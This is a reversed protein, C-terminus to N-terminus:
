ELDKSNEKFGKEIGMEKEELMPCQCLSFPCFNRLKKGLM